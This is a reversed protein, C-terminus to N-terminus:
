KFDVYSEIRKEADKIFDKNEISIKIAGNPCFRECRGCGRCQDNHVAKGNKIAIAGFGCTQICTGCGICDETVEIKLGELRQMVDDLKQGPVHKFATMMCCCDCCFCVSLLKDRDPTLFIFNDVRVKGTLPVLGVEIARDVHKHAQEKTVRRSVGHPIKLASDGMFLCGVHHTYHECKRALRCGCKDMIVHYKAKDIFDHIIVPPLVTDKGKELSKNIPLYGFSNKNPNIWPMIHQMGPIKGLRFLQLVSMTPRTMPGSKFIFSLTKQIINDKERKRSELWSNFTESSNYKPKWGTVKKFKDSNIFITYMSVSVWGGGAPFLGIKFALNALPKLLIAPVPIVLVGARKFTEATPISDDAGVNFIGPIDKKYALHLAEGLDEEHIYQNEAKSGMPLSSIPLSFLRSFMNDINPGFLLAARIITLKIEPHEKFFDSVFNEVEVKSKNYYNDDNEALPSDEYFVPPNDKHSGYATASSTYIAKKIKNKVCANFVNRSGNINIDYTKKKNKIEGVIFALHYLVDVGKLIDFLKESRIDVRHFEVKNFGGKWPNVDIGIIKDVTKDEQLKPLLTSAFYSNVGTVAITRGM